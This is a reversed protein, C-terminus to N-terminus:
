WPNPNARIIIGSNARDSRWVQDPVTTTTELNRISRPISIVNHQYKQVQSCPLKRPNAPPPRHFSLLMECEM